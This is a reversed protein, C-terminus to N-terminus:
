IEDPPDTQTHARLSIQRAARKFMENIILELAFSVMISFSAFFWFAWNRPYDGGEEYFGEHVAGLIASMWKSDLARGGKRITKIKEEIQTNAETELEGRRDKIKDDIISVQSNMGARVKAIGEAVPGHGDSGGRFIRVEQGEEGISEFIMDTLKQREKRLNSLETDDIMKEDKAEHIDRVAEEIALNVSGENPKHMLQAFFVLSCFISIAVLFLRLLVGTFSQSFRRWFRRWFSGNEQTSHFYIILICKSGELAVITLIPFLANNKPTQQTETPLKTDEGVILYWIFKLFEAPLSVIGLESNYSHVMVKYEIMASVIAAAAGFFLALLIFITPLGTRSDRDAFFSFISKTVSWASILFNIFKGVIPLGMIFDRIRSGTITKNNEDM